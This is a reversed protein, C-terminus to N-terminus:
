IAEHIWTWGCLGKIFDPDAKWKRLTNEVLLLKDALRAFTKGKVVKRLEEFLREAPNLEPSYPPLSILPLGVAQVKAHKHSSANDWIVAELGADQWCQVGVAIETHQMGFLWTWALDGHEGEVCCSLYVSEREGQVAQPPSFGPPTYRHGLVGHLSLLMEDGFGIHAATSIANAQLAATM